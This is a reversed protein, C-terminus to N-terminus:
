TTISAPPDCRIEPLLSVVLRKIKSTPVGFFVINGYLDYGRRGARGSMQRYMMGNLFPSDGAFVVTKCPANIGLALTSTAIVVRLKKM